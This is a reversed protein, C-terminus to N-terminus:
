RMYGTADFACPIYKINDNQITIVDFRIKSNLLHNAKLYNLATKIIARQKSPTVAEAASGYANTTRKKVEIFTITDGDRAIIDIENEGYHYNRVLVKFGKNELYKVAETEGLSGFSRKNM